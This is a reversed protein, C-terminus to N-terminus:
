DGEISHSCVSCYITSINGDGAVVVVDGESVIEGDISSLKGKKGCNDCFVTFMQM